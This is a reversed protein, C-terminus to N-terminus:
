DLLADIAAAANGSSGYHEKHAIVLAPDLVFHMHNATAGLQSKMLGTPDYLVPMTLGGKDKIKQCLAATPVGSSASEV